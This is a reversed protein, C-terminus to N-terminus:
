GFRNEKQTNESIETSDTLASDATETLVADNKQTNDIEAEGADETGGDTVLADEHTAKGANSAEDKTDSVAAQVNVTDAAVM